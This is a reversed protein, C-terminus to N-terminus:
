EVSYSCGLLVGQDKRFEMEEHSQRPSECREQCFVLCIDQHHWEKDTAKCLQNLYIVGTLIISYIHLSYIYIYIYM